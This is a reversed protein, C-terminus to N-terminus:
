GGLSKRLVKIDEQMKYDSDLAEKVKDVSYIVTTHDKGGFERGIEPYSKSTMEKCLFMAIQRPYTFTKLRKASDM